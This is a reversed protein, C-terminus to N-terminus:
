PVLAAPANVVAFTLTAPSASDGGGPPPNHVKVNLNTVATLMNAPVTTQLTQEDIFTTPMQNAGIWISSNAYFRGGVVTLLLPSSNIVASAPSLHSLIPVNEITQLVQLGGGPGSNSWQTMYISLNDPSVAIFVPGDLAFGDVFSPAGTTPDRGDVQ